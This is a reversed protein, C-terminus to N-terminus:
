ASAGERHRALRAGNSNLSFEGNLAGFAARAEPAFASLRIRYRLDPGLHVRGRQVEDRLALELFQRPRGTSRELEDLTLGGGLERDLQQVRRRLHNRRGRELESGRHSWYYARRRAREAERNLARRERDRRRRAEAYVPDSMARERWAKYKTREQERYAPDVLKRV